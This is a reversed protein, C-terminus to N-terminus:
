LFQQLLPPMLTRPCMRTKRTSKSFFYLKKEQIYVNHLSLTAIGNTELSYPFAYKEMWRTTPKYSFGPTTLPKSIEARHPCINRKNEAQQSHCLTAKNQGTAFTNSFWHSFILRM